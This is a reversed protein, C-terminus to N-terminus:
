PQPWANLSFTKKDPYEKIIDMYSGETSSSQLLTYTLKDTLPNSAGAQRPPASHYPTMSRLGVSLNIWKNVSSVRRLSKTFHVISWGEEREGSKTKTERESEWVRNEWGRKSKRQWQGLRELGKMRLNEDKEKRKSRKEKRSRYLERKGRAPWNVPTARRTILIIVHLSTM